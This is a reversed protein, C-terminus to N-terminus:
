GDGRLKRIVARLEDLARDPDIFSVQMGSPSDGGGDEVLLHSVVEGDLDLPPLDSALLELSVRIRSGVPAPRPTPVFFGGEQRHNLFVQLFVEPSSFRVLYHPLEDGAEAPPSGAVASPEGALAYRGATPRPAAPATPKAPAAAPGTAGPILEGLLERVGLLRVGMGSTAVKRLEPAVRAARAVEAQFVYNHGPELLELRFRSGTPLLARTAIFMGTLSLDITFAEHQAGSDPEWFRVPLRRKYRPQNRLKM